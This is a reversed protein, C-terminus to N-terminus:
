QNTGRKIGMDESLKEIAVFLGKNVLDILLNVFDEEGLEMKQLILQMIQEDNGQGGWLAAGNNEEPYYYENPLLSVDSPNNPPFVINVSVRTRTEPKSNPTGFSFPYPHRDVGFPNYGPAETTLKIKDRSSQSAWQASAIGYEKSIRGLEAEVTEQGAEPWFTVQIKHQNSVAREEEPVSESYNPSLDATIKVLSTENTGPLVVEFIIEIRDEESRLDGTERYYINFHSVHICSLGIIKNNAARCFDHRNTTLYDGIGRITKWALDLRNALERMIHRSYELYEAWSAAEDRLIPINRNDPFQPLDSM